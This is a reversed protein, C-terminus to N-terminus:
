TQRHCDPCYRGSEGMISNKHEDPHRCMRQLASLKARAIEVAGQAAHLEDEYVTHLERVDDPKM